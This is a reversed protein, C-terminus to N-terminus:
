FYYYNLLHTTETIPLLPFSVSIRENIYACICVCVDVSVFVYVGVCFAETDQVNQNRANDIM